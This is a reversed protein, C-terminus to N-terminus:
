RGLHMSYPDYSAGYHFGANGAGSSAEFSRHVRERHVRERFLRARYVPEERSVVRERRRPGLTTELHLPRPAERPRRAYRRYHSSVRPRAAHPVPSPAPAAHAPASQRELRRAQAARDARSPLERVSVSPEDGAASPANARAHIAVRPPPALPDWGSWTLGIPIAALLVAGAGLLIKPDSWRGGSGRNVM